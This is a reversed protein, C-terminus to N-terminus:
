RSPSRTVRPSTVSLSAATARARLVVVMRRRMASPARGALWCQLPAGQIMRCASRSRCSMRQWALARRDRRGGGSSRWCFRSSRDIVHHSSCCSAGEDSGAFLTNKRGLAIPRIAREVTNTDLEIRGDELFRTLSAWRALTYRLAEALTSKGSLRALQQELWPKLAETIPRSREQRVRHREQASRYRIETEVAYLAGIREVTEAAIPSGTAEHVDYFKRRVHAWCHALVVEGEAREAVLRDFGQFADVQLIGRFDALHEIPYAHSRGESYVDAAAPPATGQWPRDDRAYGWLRATKTRGRGPELVPLPTDDAFIKSSALINALLRAHLLNLWWAARGVWDALTARDLDIGQRAFIQAQRYLPLHDAYKSVLVHAILAETAMGGDLPRVPAPAQVVASECARCGYRPRRIVRVKFPAPVIDLQESVDEGIVHLVGGCCPCSKDAPEIVIEERPLHKPLAGRNRRAPARRREGEPSRAEVAEQAAEAMGLSQELDELALQRQDPDLKEARRGFQARQLQKILFRLRDSEVQYADREARLRAVEAHREAILADREALLGRLRVIEDAPNPLATDM